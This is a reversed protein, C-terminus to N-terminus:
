FLIEDEYTLHVRELSLIVNDDLCFLPDNLIYTIRFVVFRDSYFGDPFRRFFEPVSAERDSPYFENVALYDGVRYFRDNKRVEFTKIGKLLPAFYEPLCKVSHVM